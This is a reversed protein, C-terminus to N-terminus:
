GKLGQVPYQVGSLAVVQGFASTTLMMAVM